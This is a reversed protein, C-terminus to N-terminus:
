PNSHNTQSTFIFNIVLSVNCPYRQQSMTENLFLQRGSVFNNHIYAYSIVIAKERSGSGFEKQIFTNMKAHNPKM